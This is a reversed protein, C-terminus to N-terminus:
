KKEIVASWNEFKDHKEALENLAKEWDFGPLFHLTATQAVSDTQFAYIQQIKELQSRV